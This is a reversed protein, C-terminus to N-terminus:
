RVTFTVAPYGSAGNPIPDVVEATQTFGTDDTARSQVTHSGPRLDLFVPNIVSEDHGVQAM